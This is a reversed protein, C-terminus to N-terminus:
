SPCVKELIVNIMCHRAHCEHGLLSAAKVRSRLSLALHLLTLLDEKFFLLAFVLKLLINAGMVGHPVLLPMMALPVLM